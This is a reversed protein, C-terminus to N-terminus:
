DEGFAKVSEVCKFISEKAKKYRQKEMKGPLVARRSYCTKCCQMHSTGQLM